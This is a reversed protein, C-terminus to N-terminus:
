YVWKIGFNRVKQRRQPGRINWESNVQSFLVLAYDGCWKECYDWHYVKCFKEIQREQLEGELYWDGLQAGKSKIQDKDLCVSNESLQLHKKTFIITVNKYVSGWTSTSLTQLQQM